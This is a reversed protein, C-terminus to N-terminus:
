STKEIPRQLKPAITRGVIQTELKDMASSLGAAHTHREAMQRDDWGAVAQITAADMGAHAANMAM